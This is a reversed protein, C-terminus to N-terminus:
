RFHPLTSSSVSPCSFGGCYLHSGNKHIIPYQETKQNLSKQYLSGDTPTNTLRYFQIISHSISCQHWWLFNREQPLFIVWHIIFVFHFWWTIFRAPLQVPPLSTVMLERWPCLIGSSEWAGKAHFLSHMYTETLPLLPLTIATEM